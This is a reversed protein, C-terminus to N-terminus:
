FEARGGRPQAKGGIWARVIIANSVNTHGTREFTWIMWAWVRIVDTHGTREFPWLMWAWVTIVDTHGTPEFPWLMWARVIIDTHGTRAFPWLTWPSGRKALRGGVFTGELVRGFRHVRLSVGM